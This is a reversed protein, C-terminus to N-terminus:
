LLPECLHNARVIGYSLRLLYLASQSDEFEILKEVVKKTTPLLEREAFESVFDDSGLPVGLM